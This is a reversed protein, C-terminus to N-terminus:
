WGTILMFPATCSIEVMGRGRNSIGRGSLAPLETGAAAYDCDGSIDATCGELSLLSFAGNIKVRHAGARFFRVAPELKEDYFVASIFNARSKLEAHIEGLNALEHDRRGGLFGFLHLERWAWDRVGNLCFRLDTEDQNDKFAVPTASKSEPAAPPSSDGDGVWLAPKLAFEIGGDIAVQQANDIGIRSLDQALLPAAMVPGVLVLREAGADHSRWDFM